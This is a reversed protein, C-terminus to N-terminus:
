PRIEIPTGNPVARWIEEIERNTVAICGDTWDGVKSASRVWDYGKPLGHIMIAGGPPVRQKGARAIDAANPYSVHLALHFKSKVNRTDIVYDGEPTKHDGERTKPGVPQGGLSITYTKLIHDNKLLTLTRKSKIVIIRDASIGPPLNNERSAQPAYFCESLALRTILLLIVPILRKM